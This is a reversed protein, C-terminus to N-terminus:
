EAIGGLSRVREAILSTSRHPVMPLFVVRGGYSRVFDAEPLETSVGAYEAGKCHVDPRLTRLLPLPTDDDFIVVADVCRNAGVIEAREKEAVVPRGAGKLRRTSADSNVGVVLVDGQARAARLSSLHGFHFLDFCGNTWVVRRGARAWAARRTALDDPALVPSTATAPQESPDLVAAEVIECITHEVVLLNEQTRATTAGPAAICVDVARALSSEADGVLAVTSLGLAKAVKAAQVVSPSEGSTSIAVLVDSPGGLAEVQRSFVHEYAYDNAIATIASSDTTLAVAALARREHAFRGVFEAAFHQADAASGGNGCVLVTGSASVARYILMAARGVAGADIGPREGIARTVSIASREQWSEGGM